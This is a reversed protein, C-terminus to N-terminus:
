YNLFGCLLINSNSDIVFYIYDNYLIIELEYFANAFINDSLFHSRHM